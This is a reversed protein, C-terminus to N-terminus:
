TASCRKVRGLPLSSNMGPNAMGILLQALKVIAYLFNVIGAVRDKGQVSPLKPLPLGIM